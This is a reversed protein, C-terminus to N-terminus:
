LQDIFYSPNYYKVTDVLSCIFSFLQQPQNKMEFPMVNSIEHKSVIKKIKKKNRIIILQLLFLM